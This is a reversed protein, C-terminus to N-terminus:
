DTKIVKKTTIGGRHKIQLLYLGPRWLSGIENDANYPLSLNSSIQEGTANLVNVTFSENADGDVRLTITSRFPNPYGSIKRGSEFYERANAVHARELLSSEEEILFLEGGYEPSAGFFYVYPGSTTFKDSNGVFPLEYTGEATGDTRWVFGGLGFYLINDRIAGADRNRYPISRFKRLRSTGTVSGDSKWLEMDPGTQVLFLARTSTSKLLFINNLMPIDFEHLEKVTTYTSRFLAVKGNQNIGTFFLYGNSTTMPGIDGANGDGTRIDSVMVTGAATGNSRWLELGHVGDNAAFFFRNQYSIGNLIQTSAPGSVIDKVLVTGANTGDSRWLERGHEPSEAHFFLTNNVDTLGSPYSHQEGQYIDKVLQTGAVTGDSKYLEDGLAGAGGFFMLEGSGTFREASTLTTSLEFTGAATGDTRYLSSGRFTDGGFWGLGNYAILSNSMVVGSLKTTTEPTGNTKFLGNPETGWNEIGFILTGDLDALQTPVIGNKYTLDKILVTGEETGDTKWYQSDAFFYYEGNLLQFDPFRLLPIDTTGGECLCPAFASKVKTTTTGDISFLSIDTSVADLALFVTNGNIDVFGPHANLWLDSGTVDRTGSATGDSVWVKRYYDPTATFFLKGNVATLHRLDTQNAYPSLDKVLVTGTATGDSKWLEQGSVGDSAEFFVTNGVATVQSIGANLNGPRIVKVLMTGASTGDSKYLQRNTLPAEAAFFVVGASVTIEGPSSSGTPHIDAVQETGSNTGDSKWLEYGTSGDTAVFLVLNGFATIRSVGSSTNGPHVDHVLETGGATGDSKWLERGNTKNNASFYLTGNVDTLHTPSSSGGGPYIDEVMVTGTVTGDSKWLEAGSEDTLAAFFAVGGSAELETIETFHKLYVTGTETGDSTWLESYLSQRIIFFSRTGTSVQGAINRAIIENRTDVNLDSVIRVQANATLGWMMVIVLSLCYVRGTQRNKLSEANGTGSRFDFLSLVNKKM